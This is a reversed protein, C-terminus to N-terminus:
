KPIRMVSSLIILFLRSRELKIEMNSITSSLYKDLGTTLTAKVDLDYVLWDPIKFPEVIDVEGVQNMECIENIVGNLWESVLTVERNQSTISKCKSHSIPNMFEGWYNM